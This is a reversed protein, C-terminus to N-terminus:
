QRIWATITFQVLWPVPKVRVRYNGVDPFRYLTPTFGLYSIPNSVEIVGIGDANIVQVVRGAKTWTNKAYPSSISIIVEDGGSFTHSLDASEVGSFTQATVYIASTM